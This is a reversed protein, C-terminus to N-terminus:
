QKDLEELRRQLAAIQKEIEVKETLGEDSVSNPFKFKWRSYGEDALMAAEDSKAHAREEAYASYTREWADLYKELNAPLDGCFSLVIRGDQRHVRLGYLLEMEFLAYMVGVDTSLCPDALARPDVGLAAAIKKLLPPRPKRFGNEYKQIRDASLGVRQGLESMRLGLVTRCFRIRIGTRRAEDTEKLGNKYIDKELTGKESTKM